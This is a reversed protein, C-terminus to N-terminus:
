DLKLAAGPKLTHTRHWDKKYDSKLQNAMANHVNYSDWEQDALEMRAVLAYLYFAEFPGSALLARARDEPWRAAATGAPAEEYRPFFSQALEGETELVWAAKETETFSNPRLSDARQVCEGLTM